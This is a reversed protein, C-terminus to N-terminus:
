SILQLKKLVLKANPTVPLNKLETKGFWRAELADSGGKAIGALYECRFYTIVFHFRIRDKIDREVFDLTCLYDRAQVVVGTEERAEREAAQTLQEGCEVSGGPLAWYGKCPDCSRRILLIEDNKMVAACVAAIPREPYERM